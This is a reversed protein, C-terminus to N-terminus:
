ETPRSGGHPHESTRKEEGRGLIGAFSVAVLGGDEERDLRERGTAIGRGRDGKFHEYDDSSILHSRNRKQQM